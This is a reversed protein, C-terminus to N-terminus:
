RDEEEKWMEVWNREFEELGLMSGKRDVDWSSSLAGYAIGFTSTGFFLLTTTFPVWLPVDWLNRDKLEGIFNLLGIGIAVPVGVSVMIRVGMREIVEQPIEDDDDGGGGNTGPKQEKAYTAPPSRSGTFGKAGAHLIRTRRTVVVPPPHLHLSKSPFLFPPKASSLLAREMAIAEKQELM